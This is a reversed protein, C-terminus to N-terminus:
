KLRAIIEDRTAVGKEILLAMLKKLVDEDRRVLAELSAIREQLAAIDAYSPGPLPRPGSQSGPDPAAGMPPRPPAAPSGHAAGPARMVGSLSSTRTRPPPGQPPAAEADFAGTMEMRESGSVHDIEVSDRSRRAGVVGRVPVGKGYFRQLAREIAKPGALYTRVNLHTKVRLEDVLTLNTPDSMAVDLFKMPQAFPIIGHAEAVEAPIIDLVNHSIQLADLDVLPVALQKSLAAVLDEELVLKMDVLVRGLPGGYRRQEILASRLATEDILGAEILIEGLRKRAM